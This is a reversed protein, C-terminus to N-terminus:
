SGKIAKLIKNADFGPILQGGIDFVPVGNSSIGAAKAKARLEKGAARDKEIDKEVFAIGNKTLFKRAKGCVGCWATTYMTVKAQAPKEAKKALAAELHERPILSGAYTGDTRETTLNFIQVFRTSGRQSPSLSLDIVQVNGRSPGPIESISTATGFGEETMYRFLLDTRTDAVTTLRPKPANEAVAVPTQKANKKEGCALLILGCFIYPVFRM